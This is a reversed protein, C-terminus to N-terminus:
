KTTECEVVLLPTIEFVGIGDVFKMGKIFECIKQEIEGGRFDGKTDRPVCNITEKM